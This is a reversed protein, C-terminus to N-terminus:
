QELLPLVELLNDVIHSPNASSLQEVTHAGTTIGISFRCGANQGEAIDVTSDGIKAVAHGSDIGFRDMACLIMDPYPRNRVVDDATILADIDRGVKWGLRHLLTEATHKDYGTNLVIHINKKQLAQFFDVANDQAYIAATQYTEELLQLFDNFILDVISQDLKEGFSTLISEIAQKKEKGAGQALVDELSVSYGHRNIARQLTKYVLNDEDVTTGAMDCVVMKIKDNKETVIM